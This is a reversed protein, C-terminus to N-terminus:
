SCMKKTPIIITTSLISSDLFSEIILIILNLDRSEMSTLIQFHWVDGKCTEIINQNLLLVSLTAIDYM